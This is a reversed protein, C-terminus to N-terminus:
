KWSLLDNLFCLMAPSLFRSLWSLKWGGKQWHYFYFSYINIRQYLWVLTGCSCTVTPLHCEVGPVGCGQKLQGTYIIWTAFAFTASVFAAAVEGGASFDIIIEQNQTHLVEGLKYGPNSNKLCTRSTQGVILCSDLPLPGLQRCSVINQECSVCVGWLSGPLLLGARPKAGQERRLNQHGRGFTRDTWCFGWTRVSFSLEVVAESCLLWMRPWLICDSGLIEARRVRRLWSLIRVQEDWVRGKFVESVAVTSKKLCFAEATSNGGRCGNGEIRCFSFGGFGLASPLAPVCLQHWPPLAPATAGPWPQAEGTTGCGGWAMFWMGPSLGQERGAGLGM